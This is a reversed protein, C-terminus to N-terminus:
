GVPVEYVFREWLTQLSEAVLLKPTWQVMVLDKSWEVFVKSRNVAQQHNWRNKNQRFKM